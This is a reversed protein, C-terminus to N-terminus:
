NVLNAGVVLTQVIVLIVTIVRVVVIMALRDDDIYDLFVPVRKGKENLTYTKITAHKVLRNSMLITFPILIFVGLFFIIVDAGFFHYVILFMVLSGTTTQMFEDVAMGLGKATDTITTTIVTALKAYKDVDESSLDNIVEIGSNKANYAKLQAVEAEIQAAQKTTLGSTSVAMATSAFVM